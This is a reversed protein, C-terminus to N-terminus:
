PKPQLALLNAQIVPLCQRCLEDDTEGTQAYHQSRNLWILAEDVKNLEALCDAVQNSLLALRCVHGSKLLLQYLAYHAYLADEYRGLYAYLGGVAEMCPGIVNMDADEPVKGDSSLILLIGTEYASIARDFEGRKQHYEGLRGCVSACRQRVAVDFSKSTQILEDTEAKNMLWENKDSVLQVAVAEQYLTSADLGGGDKRQIDNLFDAVDVLIGTYTLSRLNLERYGDIVCRYAECSKVFDVDRRRESLYMHKHYLATRLSKYIQMSPYDKAQSRKHYLQYAFGGAVLVATFGLVKKTTTM